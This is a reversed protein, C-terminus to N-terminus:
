IDFVIMTKFLNGVKEIKVQHYTIAKIEEKMKHIEPHFTQGFLEVELHYGSVIKSILLNQITVFVWKKSYLQFNLESLLEVLLIEPAAANFIFKKSSEKNFSTINMAAERWSFCASKFLEELSHEEVEVAIDAPHDIFKFAM